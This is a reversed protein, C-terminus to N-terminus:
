PTPGQGPRSLSTPGASRELLRHYFRIMEALNAVALREDTGHFRALGASTARVPSFRYVADSVATFHRADTGGLMLGPAVISGPFVERVTSAINRFAANDSPSVPSAENPTDFPEVAIRDDGIAAKVHATVAEISDGPLLRFNVLATALGPLVNDKNGASVVTLSTTTRLLAATSPAAFLQREVLPRLLWLNSLAVRQALPMEPAVAAFMEGAVGRIGGPLPSHELKALGAALMGIATSGPQAPPM